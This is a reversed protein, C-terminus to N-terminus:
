FRERTDTTSELTNLRQRLEIRNGFPDSVYCRIYGPEAIAEQIAVGAAKLRERTPALQEILLAIHGRAPPQFRAVPGLHLQQDGCALWIGMHEGLPTFADPMPIEKLGLLTCYFNRALAEQGVPLEITVHHLGLITM